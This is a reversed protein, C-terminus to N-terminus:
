GRPMAHRAHYWGLLKREVRLMCANIAPSVLAIVVIAALGGAIQFQEQARMLYNGMGDTSLLMESSVSILLAMAVALRVGIMIRPLAAPLDISRMIEARSLGISRGVQVLLPHNSRTADIANILLPFAASYFIVSIKAASGTGAFLMAVPVIALPPLPRLLDIAPEVYQGFRPTRGIFIGLPLMTVLALAFGAAARLLTIGIQEVFVPADAVLKELVMLLSPYSPSAVARASVEWALLLALTFVIGPVNIRSSNM